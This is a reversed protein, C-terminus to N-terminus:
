EGHDPVATPAQDGDLLEERTYRFEDSTDTRRVLGKDPSRAFQVSVLTLEAAGPDSAFALKAVRHAMAQKREADLNAHESNMLSVLLSRHGDLVRDHVTLVEEPYEQQLRAQIEPLQESVAFAPKLKEVLAPGYNYGSLGIAGAAVVLAVGLFRRFSRRDASEHSRASM